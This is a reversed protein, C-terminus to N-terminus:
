EFRHFFAGAHCYYAKRPKECIEISELGPLVRVYLREKLGEMGSYVGLEKSGTTLLINGEIEQLAKACSENDEFYTIKAGSEEAKAESCGRLLRFYPIDLGELSKRINGSVETAFPHTSDVVAAFVNENEATMESALQRMRAIDLRGTTVEVGDMKPMVLQGYATAVCVHCPIHEAALQEALMRGETTGAYILVKKM